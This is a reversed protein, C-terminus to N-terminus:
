KPEGQEITGTFQLVINDGSNLELMLTRNKRNTEISSSAIYTGKGWPEKHTVSIDRIETIHMIIAKGYPDKLHLDTAANTYDVDLSIVEYDHMDSAVIRDTNIM